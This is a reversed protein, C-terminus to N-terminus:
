KDDHPYRGGHAVEAFCYLNPPQGSIENLDGRLNASAQLRSDGLVGADLAKGVELVLAAGRARPVRRLGADLPSDLPM